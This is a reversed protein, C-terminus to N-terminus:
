LFCSPLALNHGYHGSWAFFIDMVVVLPPCSVRPELGRYADVIAVRGPDDPDYAFVSYEGRGGDGPGPKRPVVKSTM